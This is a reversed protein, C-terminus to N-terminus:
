HDTSRVWYKAPPLIFFFSTPKAHPAYPPPSLHACPKPPSAQPFSGNPLGLRLHSSLIFLASWAPPPPPPSQLSRAWSLSLPPASTLLTIFNRTGYIRPIEQSASFWNVEWSPSQETSYTLLVDHRWAKVSVNLIQFHLQTGTFLDENVVFV